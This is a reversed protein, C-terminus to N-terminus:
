GEVSGITGTPPPAAATLPAGSRLGGATLRAAIVIEIMSAVIMCAISVVM